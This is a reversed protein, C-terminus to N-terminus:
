PLEEADEENAGVNEQWSTDAHSFGYQEMKEKESFSDDEFEEKPDEVPTESTDCGSVEGTSEEPESTQDEDMEGSDSAESESDEEDLRDAGREGLDRDSTDAGAAGGRNALDLNIGSEGESESDNTM